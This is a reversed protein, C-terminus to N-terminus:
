ECRVIHWKVIRGQPNDSGAQISRRYAAADGGGPTTTKELKALARRKRVAAAVVGRHNPQKMREEDNEVSGITQDDWEGPRRPPGRLFLDYEGLCSSDSSPALVFDSPVYVVSVPPSNSASSSSNCIGARYSDEAELELEDAFPRHLPKINPILGSTSSADTFESSPQEHHALSPLTLEPVNPISLFEINKNDEITAKVQVPTPSNPLTADDETKKSFENRAVVNSQCSSDATKLPTSREPTSMPTTTSHVTKPKRKELIHNPSIKRFVPLAEKLARRGRRYKSSSSASNSVGNSTKSSSTPFVRSFVDSLFTM